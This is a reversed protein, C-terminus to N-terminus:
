QNRGKEESYKKQARFIKEKTQYPDPIQKFIFEQFGGATQIQLDGYKLFTPIIGKINITIDQIRDHSISSFTRHFLNNIETHITRQDTIIWCDLYYDALIIFMTQWLFILFISLLYLVFLRAKYDLLIPFTNILTEPFNFSSFFLLLMSIITALFILVVTSIDRAFILPHRRKILIIQEKERLIIM